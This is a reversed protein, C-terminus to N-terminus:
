LLQLEDGGPVQREAVRLRAHRQGLEDLLHDALRGDADDGLEVPRQEAAVLSVHEAHEALHRHRDDGAVPVPQDLRPEAGLQGGVDGAGPEDHDFPGPM